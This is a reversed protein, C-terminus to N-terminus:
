SWRHGLHQTIKSQHLSCRRAAPSVAPASGEEGGKLPPPDEALYLQLLTHYLVDESPPSHTSNLIYECLLM